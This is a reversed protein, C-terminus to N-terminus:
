RRRRRPLLTGAIGVALVLMTCPEPIQPVTFTQYFESIQAQGDGGGKVSIDKLVILYPQQGFSSNDYYRSTGAASTGAFLTDGIEVPPQVYLTETISANGSDRYGARSMWLQDGTLFGDPCSVKFTLLADVIESGSAAWGGFFRLGYNGNFDLLVGEVTVESAPPANTGAPDYAFDSFVLGDVMITGSTDILNQLTQTPTIPTDLLSASALAPAFVLALLFLLVGLFRAHADM